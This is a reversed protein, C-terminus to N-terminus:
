PKLMGRLDYYFVIWRMVLTDFVPLKPIKALVHDTVKTEEVSESM